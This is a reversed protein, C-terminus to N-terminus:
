GFIGPWDDEASLITGGWYYSPGSNDDNMVDLGRTNDVQRRNLRGRMSRETTNALTALEPISYLVDIEILDRIGMKTKM